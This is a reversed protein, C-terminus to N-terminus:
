IIGFLNFRKYIYVEAEEYTSCAGFQIPVVVYANDDSGSVTVKQNLDILATLSHDENARFTCPVGRTACHTLADADYSYWYDGILIMDGQVLYSLLNM